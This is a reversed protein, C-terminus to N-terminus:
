VPHCLQFPRPVCSPVAPLARSVPHCPQFPGPACSPVAPVAGPCLIACSSRAGPCLIARSSPGPVCSPVATLARPVPHCLQFPGPVCSPVAPVPGPACSPVAPLARPCLIACSSPGPVCSPVAPVPGPACSPVAPLARSVPHCLQLPGPCLIACSPPDARLAEDRVPIQPAVSAKSVRTGQTLESPEQTGDRPQQHRSPLPGAPGYGAGEWPTEQAWLGPEEAASSSSAAARGPAAAGAPGACSTEGGQTLSQPRWRQRSLRSRLKRQAGGSEPVLALANSCPCTFPQPPLTLTFPFAAQLRCSVFVLAVWFATERSSVVSAAVPAMSLIGSVSSSTPGRVEM